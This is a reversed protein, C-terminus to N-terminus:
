LQILQFEVFPTDVRGSWVKESRMQEISERGRGIWERTQRLEQYSFRIQYTALKLQNFWWYGADKRLILLRVQGPKHGILRAELFFEICEGPMALPFDSEKPVKIANSGGRQQIQGDAGVMEPTLTAFFSFRHPEPTNNTIRMGLQLSTYADRKKRPLRLVREPMLTEFRIGNVEVASGNPELPQILCFNVSLAAPHSSVTTPANTVGIAGSENDYSSSIKNFYIFRLQHNGPQLANFSCHTRPRFYEFDLSFDKTPLELILLDNHWFLRGDLYFGSDRGPQVLWSNINTTDERMNFNALKSFLCKLKLRWSQQQPINTQNTADQENIVLLGQLTQGDPNIIEPIFTDYWSVPYPESTKNTIQVVLHVPAIADPKNKPIALAVIDPLKIELHIGDAELANSDNSEFYTMNAVREIKLDEHAMVSIPTHSLVM